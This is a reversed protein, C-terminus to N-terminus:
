IPPSQRGPIMVIDLFSVFNDATPFAAMDVGTEALIAQAARATVGAMTQALATADAFPMMDEAIRADLTAIRAYLADILSLHQHLLFAYHLTLGGVLAERGAEQPALGARVRRAQRPRRHGPEPGRPDRPRHQGHPRHRCQGAQHQGVGADERHPQCPPRTGPHADQAPPDPRASRTHSPAARLQEAALRMRAAAGAM